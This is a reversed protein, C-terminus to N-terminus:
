RDASPNNIWGIFQLAYYLSHSQDPHINLKKRYQGKVLCFDPAYAVNMIPWLFDVGSGYYPEIQYPEKSNASLQLRAAERATVPTSTRSKFHYIYLQVEDCNAQQARPKPQDPILEARIQAQCYFAQFSPSALYVFDQDPHMDKQYWLLTLTTVLIMFLPILLALYLRSNKKMSHM